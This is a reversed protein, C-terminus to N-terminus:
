AIACAYSPRDATKMGEIPDEVAYRIVVGNVQAEPLFGIFLDGTEPQVTIGEARGAGTPLPVDARLTFDEDFVVLRDESAARFLAYILGTADDQSVDQFGGQESIQVTRLDAGFADMVRLIPMDRYTFVHDGTRLVDGGTLQTVSVRTLSFGDVRQFRGAILGQTAGTDTKAILMADRYALFPTGWSNTDHTELRAGSLTMRMITHSGSVWLHCSGTAYALTLPLRAEFRDLELLSLASAPIPCLAAVFLVIIARLRPTHITRDVTNYIM